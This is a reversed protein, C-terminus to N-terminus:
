VCKRRIMRLGESDAGHLNAAAVKEEVAVAEGNLTTVQPLLYVQHLRVSM